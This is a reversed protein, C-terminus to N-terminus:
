TSPSYSPSPASLTGDQGARQVFVAPGRDCQGLCPSPMVDPRDGLAELIALGGIDRCCVDDCVHAVKTPREETSLLAYFSAVGYAEAPPVILRECIYNMAGRSIWGIGGQAAQLAPLLLHRNAASTHFGGFAVHGDLPSRVSGGDWSSAPPGLLADIAAKEADTAEANM